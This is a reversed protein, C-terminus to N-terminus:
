FQVFPFFTHRTLFDFSSMTLLEDRTALSAANEQTHSSRQWLEFVIKINKRCSFSPSVLDENLNSENKEFFKWFIGFFNGFIKWFNEFIGVKVNKDEVLVTFRSLAVEENDVTPSGNASIGELEMGFAEEYGSKDVVDPVDDVLEEEASHSRLKSRSKKKKKEKSSKKEGSSGKNIPLSSPRDVGQQKGEAPGDQTATLWFSLDDAGTEDAVVARATSVREEEVVVPSDPNEAGDEETMNILSAEEVAKKKKKKKEAKSEAANEDATKSKSKSKKSTKKEGDKSKKSRSPKPATAQEQFCLFFVIFFIEIEDVM